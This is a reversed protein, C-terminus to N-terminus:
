ELDASEFRLSVDLKQRAKFNRGSSIDALTAGPNMKQNRQLNQLKAFMKNFNSTLFYGLTARPLM